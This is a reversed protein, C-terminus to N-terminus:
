SVLVSSLRNVAAFTVTSPLNMLSPNPLLSPAAPPPSAAAVVLQDVNFSM